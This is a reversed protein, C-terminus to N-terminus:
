SEKNAEEIYKQGFLVMTNLISLLNKPLESLHCSFKMQQLATTGIKELYKIVCTELLNLAHMPMVALLIGKLLDYKHEATKLQTADTFLGGPLQALKSPDCLKTTEELFWENLMDVMHDLRNPFQFEISMPHAPAADAM